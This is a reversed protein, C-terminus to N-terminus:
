MFRNRTTTSSILAGFQASITREDIDMLRYEIYYPKEQGPLALRDKSRQLEDHLAALTKDSDGAPVPAIQAPPAPAPKAAPGNPAALAIGCPATLAFALSATLLFHKSSRFSM